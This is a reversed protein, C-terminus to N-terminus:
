TCDNNYEEEKWISDLKALENVEEESFEVDYCASGYRPIFATGEECGVHQIYKWLLKRYDM